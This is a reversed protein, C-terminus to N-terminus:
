SNYQLARTQELHNPAPTINQWARIFSMDPLKHSM